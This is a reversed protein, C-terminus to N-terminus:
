ELGARAIRLEEFSYKYGTIERIETNTKAPHDLLVACMERNREAGLVDEASVRGLIVLKLLHGYVTSETLKRARAVESVSGHVKWADFTEDTTNKQALTKKKRSPATYYGTDEEDPIFQTSRVEEKVRSVLNQKYKRVEDSELFERSIESGSIVAELWRRSRLLRLVAATTVDDLVVLEEFLAKMRKLRTVEEMKKLLEYHVSFLVESFYTFATHCREELYAIDTKEESLIKLLLRGFKRSPEQIERIKRFQEEAWPQFQRKPSNPLESDYSFKHNRWEQCMVELDFSSRLRDSLYKVTETDLEDRLAEEPTRTKSYERVHNDSPIVSAPFPKLLVLGELSRLRSLAVYAQGPAFARSVDLVAKDFTLGQSKHVTIAWALKLPFQTYTGLVEEEIAKTMSSVTYRINKWEYKDVQLTKKEERFEVVVQGEELSKIHGIKGNYYRKEPSLDNKIFMVQAGTKLHLDAEMPFIREPFDGVVEPSFVTEHGELDNLAEANRQDADANHTTLTIYGEAKRIDFDPRHHRNLATIDEASIRNHRLNNLIRIFDENQQRHVKELEVHVPPSNRIVQADFFFPSNYYKRLIQWEEPKVIPPLQLLDGIFLVQVGGFPQQNRRIRQLMFDVADLLDARLMSVEDIVLLEMNRIVSQRTGNMRFHRVLSSRTEVKLQDGFLPSVNDDPVFAGFPLQFMSHVTVGGANLAAIGTPAVVVANKHTQALIEKLLTTKGTGAKGTLFVSRHTQNIYRSVYQTLTTNM